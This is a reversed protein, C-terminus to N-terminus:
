RKFDRRCNRCNYTLKINGFPITALLSMIIAFLKIHKYRGLGYKIDTSGCHPCIIKSAADPNILTVAQEYDEELVLVQIGAGMMGNFYPILTTTNENTIMCKIGHNELNGKILAAEQSNNCTTLRKTKM